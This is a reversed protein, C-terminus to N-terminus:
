DILKDTVILDLNTFDLHLINYPMKTNRKDISDYFKFYFNFESLLTHAKKVSKIDEIERYPIQMNDLLKISFGELGITYCNYLNGIEVENRYDVDGKIDVLTSLM